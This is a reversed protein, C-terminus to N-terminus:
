GTHAGQMPAHPSAGSHTPLLLACQRELLGSQWRGCLAQLRQRRMTHSTKKVRHAAQVHATPQLLQLLRLSSLATRQVQRLPPQGNIYRNM